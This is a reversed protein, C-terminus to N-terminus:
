GSTRATFEEKAWGATNAGAQYASEVFELLTDKPSDSKRVEEYTLLATGGEQSSAAELRLTQETLGEPEPATYSYFPPERM